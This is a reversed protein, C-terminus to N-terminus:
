SQGDLIEMEMEVGLELGMEIPIPPVGLARSSSGFLSVALFFHSVAKLPALHSHLPKKESM